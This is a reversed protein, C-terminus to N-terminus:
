AIDLLEAALGGNIRRREADSYGAAAVIDLPRSVSGALADAIAKICDLM